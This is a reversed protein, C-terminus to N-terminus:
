LKIQVWQTSTGDNVRLFTLGSDSEYWVSGDSAGAPPNDAIIMQATGAPGQPGVLSTGAPWAGGMKPGFLFNTTTNIYFNGNVGVAAAPNAAGYLVTNGDAGTLGIPGQVGVDGKIGQDGKDGKDGKQGQPGVISTGAPWINGLKPGFIFNTTTNIYFDGNAGYTNVPDAPGYGVTNGRPGQPGPPGPPGVVTSPPGEPGPPGPPGPSLVQLVEVDSDTTVVITGESPAIELNAIGSVDVTNTM